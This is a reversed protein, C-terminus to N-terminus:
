PPPRGLHRRRARSWGAAPFAACCRRGARGARGSQWAARFGAQGAVCGQRALRTQQTACVVCGTTFCYCCRPLLAWPMPVDLPRDHTFTGRAGDFGVAEFHAVMSADMSHVHQPLWAGLEDAMQRVVQSEGQHGRAEGERMIRLTTAHHTSHCNDATFGTVLWADEMKFHAEMASILPSCRAMLDEDPALGVQALAAVIANHNDNVPQLNVLLADSWEPVALTDTTPTMHNGCFASVM